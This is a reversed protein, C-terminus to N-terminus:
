KTRRITYERFQVNPERPIGSWAENELMMAVGSIVQTESTAIVIRHPIPKEHQCNTKEGTCGVLPIYQVDVNPLSLNYTQEDTLADPPINIVIPLGESRHKTFTQEVASVIADIRDM